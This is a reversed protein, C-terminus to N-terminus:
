ILRGPDRFETTMHLSYLSTIYIYIYTRLYAHTHTHTYHLVVVRAQYYIAYRTSILQMGCDLDHARLRRYPMATINIVIHRSALYLSVNSCTKCETHVFLDTELRPGSGTRM